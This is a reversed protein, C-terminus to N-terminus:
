ELAALIKKMQSRYKELAARGEDTISLVTMPKREVFAKKVNIYHAEELKSMHTSFNGRTLGMQKQLFVFDASDINYLISLLMLRAPEHVLKDIDGAILLVDFLAQNNDMIADNMKM